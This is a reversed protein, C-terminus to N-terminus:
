VQVENSVDAIGDTVQVVATNIGGLMAVIGNKRSENGYYLAAVAGNIFGVFPVNWLALKQMLEQRTDESFGLAPEVISIPHEACTHRIGSITVRKPRKAITNGVVHACIVGLTHCVPAADDGFPRKASGNIRGDERNLCADGVHHNELGHGATWLHGRYREVLSVFSDSRIPKNSLTDYTPDQTAFKTMKSGIDITVTDFFREATHRRM